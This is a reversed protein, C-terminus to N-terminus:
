RRARDDTMRDAGIRNRIVARLAWVTVEVLAGLLVFYVPVTAAWLRAEAIVKPWIIMM